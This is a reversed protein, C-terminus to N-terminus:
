EVQVVRNLMVYWLWAETNKYGMDILLQRYDMIQKNHAKDIVMGFKYDIVVARDDKILVRDPRKVIGEPLVFETETMVKWDGSFWSIVQIDGLLGQIAAIMETAESATIIGERAMKNLVDPIDNLHQIRSFIDHMLSGESVPRTIKGTESETFIKGQFAIKLHDRADNVPYHTLM